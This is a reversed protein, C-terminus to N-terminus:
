YKAVVAGGFKYNIGARLSRDRFNSDVRAGIVSALALTYTGANIDGLDMYLYEPKATWNQTIM